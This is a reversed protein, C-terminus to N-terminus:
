VRLDMVCTGLIGLALLHVNFIKLAGEKRGEEERGDRRRDRGEKGGEKWGEM